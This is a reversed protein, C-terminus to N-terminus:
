VTLWHFFVYLVKLLLITNGTNPMNQSTPQSKRNAQKSSNPMYEQSNTSHSHVDVSSSTIHHPTPSPSKSRDSHIRRSTQPSDYTKLDHRPSKPRSKDSQHSKISLSSEAPQISHAITTSTESKPESALSSTSVLSKSEQSSEIPKITEEVVLKPMAKSPATTEYGTISQAPSTRSNTSRTSGTPTKYAEPTSSSNVGQAPAKHSLEKLKQALM